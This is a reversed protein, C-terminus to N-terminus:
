LEEIFQFVEYRHNINPAEQLRWKSLLAGQRPNVECFFVRNARAHVLAMACM